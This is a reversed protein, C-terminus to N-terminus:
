TPNFFENKGILANRLNYLLINGPKNPDKRPNQRAQGYKHSGPCSREIASQCEVAEQQAPFCFELRAESFTRHASTCCFLVSLAVLNITEFM